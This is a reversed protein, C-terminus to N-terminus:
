NGRISKHIRRSSELGEDLVSNSVEKVNKTNNVKIVDKDERMRLSFMVYMHGFNKIPKTVSLKTSIGCLTLKVLGFNLVQTVYDTSVANM